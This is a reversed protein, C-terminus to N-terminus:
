DRLPKVKNPDIELSTTTLIYSLYKTRIVDFESKKIDVQLGAERFRSLVKYVQKTHELPDESYILINDLYAICFEDQYDILVNNM